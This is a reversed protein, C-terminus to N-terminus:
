WLISRIEYLSRTILSSPWCAIPGCMSRRVMTFLRLSFHYPCTEREEPKALVMKCPVTFPPFLYPLCFFLHSSMLSHVPRSNALDWLATSFQFFHLFSTTFDDTAGWRRMCYLSLQTYTLHPLCKSHRATGVAMRCLTFPPRHLHPPPLSKTQRTNLALPWHKSQGATCAAMRCPSLDSSTWSRSSSSTAGSDRPMSVAPPTMVERMLRLVVMGVLCVKVKLVWGCLWSPAKMWTPAPQEPSVRHHRKKQRVQGSNFM